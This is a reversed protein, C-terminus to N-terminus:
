QKVENEKKAYQEGLKLKLDEIKKRMEPLQSIGPIWCANCFYHHHAGKIGEGCKLCISDPNCNRREKSYRKKIKSKTIDIM